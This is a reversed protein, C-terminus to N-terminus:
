KGAEEDKGQARRARPAGAAGPARRRRGLFSHALFAVAVLTSVLMYSGVYTANGLTIDLRDVEQLFPTLRLGSNQGVGLVAVVVAAALCANLLARWDARTRYVSVLVWAFALWHALSVFGQMREYYSWISRQPSVGLLSSVLTALLYVAFAILIASRPARYSPNRLFVLLWLGVAVLTLFRVYLAKGVVFPFFANPLLWEVEPLWEPPLVRTMVILPTLVVLALLVKITRVLVAEVQPNPAAPPSAM